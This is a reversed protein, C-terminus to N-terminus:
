ISSPLPRFSRSCHLWRFNRDVLSPKARVNYGHTIGSSLYAFGIRFTAGGFSPSGKKKIHISFSNGM